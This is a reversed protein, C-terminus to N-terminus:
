VVSKRDLILKGPTNNENAFLASYRIKAKHEGFHELDQPSLGIKGAIEDIHKLKTLHGIEIDSLM